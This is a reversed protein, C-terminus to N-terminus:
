DNDHSEIIIIKDHDSEIIVNYNNHSETMVKKEEHSEIKLKMKMWSLEEMYVTGHISNLTIYQERPVRWAESTVNTTAMHNWHNCVKKRPDM